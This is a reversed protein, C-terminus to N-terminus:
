IPFSNYKDLLSSLKNPSYESTAVANLLRSVSDFRLTDGNMYLYKDLEESIKQKIKTDKKDQKNDCATITLIGLLLLLIGFIKKM